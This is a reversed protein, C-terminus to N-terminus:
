KAVWGTAGTGSEKVYFSTGTGGNSRHYTSGVGAIVSAEPTGSGTIIRIDNTVDLTIDSYIIVEGNDLLQFKTAGASDTTKITSTGLTTGNGRINLIASPTSVSGLSVYGSNDIRLRRTGTTTTNNAATHFDIVTAANGGSDGGGFRLTNTTSSSQARLWLFPEEINTYHNTSMSGTKTASNTESDTIFLQNNNDSFIKLPASTLKLYEPKQTLNSLDGTGSDTIAFTNGNDAFTSINIDTGDLASYELSQGTSTITRNATLTGDATYLNDTVGDVEIVDGDSEVALYKTPTGTVTGSGYNLLKFYQHISVSDNLISFISDGTSNEYAIKNNKMRMREGKGDIGVVQSFLSFTFLSFLVSLFLYKM